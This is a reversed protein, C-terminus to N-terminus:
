LSDFPLLTRLDSWALAQLLLMMLCQAKIPQMVTFAIDLSLFTITRYKGTTKAAKKSAEQEGSSNSFEGTTVLPASGVGGEADGVGAGVGKVIVPDPM